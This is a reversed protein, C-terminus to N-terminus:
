ILYGLVNGEHDEWKADSIDPTSEPLVRNNSFKTALSIDSHWYYAYNGDPERCLYHPPYNPNEGELRIVFHKKM